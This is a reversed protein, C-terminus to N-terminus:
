SRRAGKAAPDVGTQTQLSFELQAGPKEGSILFVEFEKGALVREAGLRQVYRPVNVADLTRGELRLNAGADSITVGTLWLGSMHQRALAEFYDSYGGKSVTLDRNLAQQTQRLAAVQQELRAVPDAAGPQAGSVGLRRAAEQLRASAAAQQQEATRLAGRMDHLQWLLFGYLLVVGAVIAAGAQLMATGSFKKEQRRFIPRYLNIQQMV